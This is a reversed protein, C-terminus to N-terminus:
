NSKTSVNDLEKFIGRGSTARLYKLEGSEIKIIIRPSIILIENKEGKNHVFAESLLIISDLENQETLFFKLTDSKGDGDKWQISCGGTLIGNNSDENFFLTDANVKMQEGAINVSDYGQISSNEIHFKEAKVVLTDKRLFKILPKGEILTSDNTSMLFGAYVEMSDEINRYFVKGYATITGETLYVSDAKLLTNNERVIVNGYAKAINGKQELLLRQAELNRKKMTAIVKGVLVLVDQSENYSGEPAQIVLSSDKVVVGGSFKVLEKNNERIIDMRGSEISYSVILLLFWM